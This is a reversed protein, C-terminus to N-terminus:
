GSVPAAERLGALVARLGELAAPAGCYAAVHAVLEGLEDETVGNRLAAPAHLAVEAAHGRAMLVALTVLSRSRLDLGPRSWVDGWVFDLALSRFPAAVRPGEAGARAAYSPGLVASLRDLARARRDSSM